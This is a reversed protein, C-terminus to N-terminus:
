RRVTEGLRDWGPLLLAGLGIVMLLAKILGGAVPVFGLILWLVTGLAMATYDREREETMILDKVFAYPGYITALFITAALVLGTLFALPIGLVTLVLFVMIIPTIILATLGIFGSPVTRHWFNDATKRAFRPSLAILALGILLRFIFSTTTFVQEVPLEPTNYNGSNIERRIISGNIQGQNTFNDSDYALDGSIEGSSGVLIDRASIIASDASGNIVARESSVRLEESIDGGNDLVFNGASVEAGNGVSSNIMVNGGFISVHGTVPGDIDVNGGFATLDGNVQHVTIQGGMATVSTNSDINLDGGTVTRASAAATFFAAFLVLLAIRTFAKNRTM